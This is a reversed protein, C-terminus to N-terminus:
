ICDASTIIDWLIHPNLWKNKGKIGTEALVSRIPNEELLSMNKLPWTQGVLAAMTRSPRTQRWTTPTQRWRRRGSGWQRCASSCRYSTRYKMIVDDFPFMKQRISWKHPSNVPWRHIGRVFALSASSQHKRQDAGSYVTSYIITLSTIQSAMVGM